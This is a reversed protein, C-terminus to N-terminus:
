LSSAVPRGSGAAGAVEERLLSEEAAPLVFFWDRGLRRALDCPTEGNADAADTDAGNISLYAASPKSNSILALHLATRGGDDVLNPDAGADLLEVVFGFSGAAAAAHLLTEGGDRAGIDVGGAVLLEFADSFDGRVAKFMAGDTGISSVTRALAERVDCISQATDTDSSFLRFLDERSSDKYCLAFKVFLSRGKTFLEFAGGRGASLPESKLKKGDNEMRRGRDFRCRSRWHRYEPCRYKRVM